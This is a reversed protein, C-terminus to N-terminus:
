SSYASVSPTPAQPPEEDPQAMATTLNHTFERTVAAACQQFRVVFPVCDLAASPSGNATEYCKGVAAKESGCREASIPFPGAMAQQMEAFTRASADKSLRYRVLCADTVARRDRDAPTEIDFYPDPTPEAAPPPAQAAPQVPAAAASSDPADSM